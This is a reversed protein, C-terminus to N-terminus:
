IGNTPLGRAPILLFLLATRAWPFLLLAWPLSQLRPPANVTVNFSKSVETNACGEAEVTISATGAYSPKWAVEIENGFTSQGIIEYDTGEVANNFEWTYAGANAAIATYERTAGQCISENEPVSLTGLAPSIVVKISTTEQNGCNNTATLFYYGSGQNPSYTQNSGVIPDNSDETDDTSHKWTFSSTASTNQASCNRFSNDGECVNTLHGVLEM